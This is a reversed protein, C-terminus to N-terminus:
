PTYKMHLFSGIIRKIDNYIMIWNAVSKRIGVLSAKIIFNKGFTKGLVLTIVVIEHLKHLKLIVQYFNLYLTM